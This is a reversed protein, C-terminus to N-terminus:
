EPVKGDGDGNNRRRGRGALGTGKGPKGDREPVETFGGVPADPNDTDEAETEEDEAAGTAPEPTREPTEEEDESFRRDEDEDRDLLRRNEGAGVIAPAIIEPTDKRAAEREAKRSPKTGEPSDSIENSRRRYAGSTRAAEAIRELGSSATLDKPKPSPAIQQPRNAYLGIIGAIKLRRIANPITEGPMIRYENDDNVIMPPGWYVPNRPDTNDYVGIVDTWDYGIGTGLPYSAPKINRV